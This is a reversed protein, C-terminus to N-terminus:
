CILLLLDVEPCVWANGAGRIEGGDVLSARIGYLDAVCNDSNFTFNASIYSFPIRDVAAVAGADKNNMM